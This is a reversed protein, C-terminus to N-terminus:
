ASEALRKRRWGFFGMGAVATAFLPLAAPIPVATVEIGAFAYDNTGDDRLFPGDFATFLISMIGTDTISLGNSSALYGGNGSQIADFLLYSVGGDFSVAAQETGNGVFLDLFFLRDVSVLQDFELLMSQGSTVTLGRIEDDSIGAGDRQCALVADSVCSGLGSGGDYGQNFNIGAANTTTLDFGIGGVNGSFGGAISNLGSILAQDTFDIIAANSPAAASLLAAFAGFRLGSLFKM